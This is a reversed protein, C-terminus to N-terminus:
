ESGSRAVGSGKLRLARRDQSGLPKAPALPVPQASQVPPGMTGEYEDVVDVSEDIHVPPVHLGTRATNPCLPDWFFYLAVIGASTLMLLVIVLAELAKSVAKGTADPVVPIAKAIRPPPPPPDKPGGFNPMTGNVSWIACFAARTELPIEIDAPAIVVGRKDKREDPLGLKHRIHACASWVRKEIADEKVGTMAAIEPCARGEIKNAIFMGRLHEPLLDIADILESACIMQEANPICGPLEDPNAAQYRDNDRVIHRRTKRAINSAIKSLEKKTGPESVPIERINETVILWLTQTADRAQEESLGL